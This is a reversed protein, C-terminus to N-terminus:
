LSSVLNVIKEVEAINNCKIIDGSTFEPYFLEYSDESIYRLVAIEYRNDQDCSYKVISVGYGNECKHITKSHIYINDAIKEIM